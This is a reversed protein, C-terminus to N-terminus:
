HLYKSAHKRLGMLYSLAYPTVVVSSQGRERNGDVLGIVSYVRLIM